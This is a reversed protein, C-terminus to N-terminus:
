PIYFNKLKRMAYTRRDQQYLSADENRRYLEDWESKKAIPHRHDFIIKNIFVYKNLLKAVETYENDAFVSLYRPNYLYGFRDFYKKGLISLTSVRDKAFSDPYHIIGDFDPFHKEFDNIVEVGFINSLMVMDDSFLVCIDWDTYKEIDRNCAEIKTKSYGLDVIVNKYSNLKAILEDNITPDDLDLTLVITYDDVGIYATINDLASILKKPRSRSPFKLLIKPM